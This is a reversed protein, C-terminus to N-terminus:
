RILLAWSVAHCPMVARTPRPMTNNIVFALLKAGFPDRAGSM